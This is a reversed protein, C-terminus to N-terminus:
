TLVYFAGLPVEPDDGVIRLAQFLLEGLQRFAAGPRASLGGGGILLPASCLFADLMSESHQAPQTAIGLSFAFREVFLTRFRGGRGLPAARGTGIQAPQFGLAFFNIRPHSTM